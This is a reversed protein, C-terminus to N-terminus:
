QLQKYAWNSNSIKNKLGFRITHQQYAWNRDSSRRRKTLGFQITDQQYPWAINLRTRPRQPGISTQDSIMRVVFTTQDKLNSPNM